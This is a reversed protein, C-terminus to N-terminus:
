INANSVGTMKFLDIFYAFSRYVNVEMWHRPSTHRRAYMKNGLM